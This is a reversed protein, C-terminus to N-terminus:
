YTKPFRMTINTEVGPVSHITLGYSNGYKLRIREQVNQIGFHKPMSIATPVFLSNLTEESIGRGDDSVTICIIQESDSTVRIRIHGDERYGAFGHLVTNEVLPQLLMKLIKLEKLDEDAEIEYTFLGPTRILQIELYDRILHLEERITILNRGKSLIGRYYRGLHFIMSTATEKKDDTVLSSINDLCNYLFHPNIQAQMLKLEYERRQNQENYIRTTLERINNSMHQFRDALFGIEDSSKVPVPAGFNGKGAEDAYDALQRIPRVLSKALIQSLLITIALVLLGIVSLLLTLSLAERYVRYYSMTYFVHFNGSQTPSTLMLSRRQDWSLVKSNKTQDVTLSYAEDPVPTQLLARNQSSVITGDADTIFFMEDNEDSINRYSEYFLDEKVDFSLIGLCVGTDIDILSKSINFASQGSKERPPGFIMQGGKATIEEYLKQMEPTPESIEDTKIDFVRGDFTQVYGDYVLSGIDMINYVSSHMATSFMYSGYTNDPYSTCIATQLASSTSFAKINYKVNSVIRDAQDCVLILKDMSNQMMEKKGNHVMLSISLVLIMLISIVNLPLFLLLVKKKLNLQKWITSIKM